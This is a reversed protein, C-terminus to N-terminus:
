EHAAEQMLTLLKKKSRHLMVGVNSANLGLVEAMEDYSFDELFLTVLAKEVENLQAIADYLRALQEEAGDDRVQRSEIHHTLQEHDLPVAPGGRATRRRVFSISTNIAIRYLWTNAHTDQKLGPLARWIQFLIEQYM